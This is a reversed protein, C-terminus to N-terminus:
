SSYERKWPGKQHIKEAGNMVWWPLPLRLMSLSFHPVLFLSQQTSQKHPSLFPIAQSMPNADKQLTHM